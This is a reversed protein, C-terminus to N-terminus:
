GPLDIKLLLFSCGASTPCGFLSHYLLGFNHGKGLHGFLLITLVPLLIGIKDGTLGINLIGPKVGILLLDDVILNVRPLTIRHNELMAEVDRM